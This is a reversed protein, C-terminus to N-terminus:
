QWSEIGKKISYMYMYEMCMMLSVCVIESKWKEGKREMKGEEKKEGEKM